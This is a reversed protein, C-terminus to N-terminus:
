NPTRCIEYQRETLWNQVTQKYAGATYTYGGTSISPEGYGLSAGNWGFIFGKGFESAYTSNKTYFCETASKTGVASRTSSVTISQSEAVAAGKDRVAGTTTEQEKDQRTRTQDQKCDTATQTFTQGSNVTSTAPSWNSCSSVVGSNVWATYTPTTAVWTEKTGIANQTSTQGTLVQTESPASVAETLGTKHNVFSESRSRAQNLKCDSSTQIFSQGITVSSPEPSWNTCGFAEGVNTWEGVSISYSRSAQQDNLTQTEVVPAGIDRIQDTFREQERDQRQREQDTKCLSTQIFTTTSNYTAPNPNWTSCDYLANTDVWSTYTPDSEAWNELIGTAERSDSAQITRNEEHQTGNKQVEGTVNNKLYDQSWRTQDQNCNNATQTFTVGKGITSTSPSWNSCGYPTGIDQWEGYQTDTAAWNAPIAEDVMSYNFRYSDAWSANPLLLAGAILNCILLRKYM